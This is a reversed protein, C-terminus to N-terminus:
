SPARGAAGAVRRPRPAGGCHGCQPRRASVAAPTGVPELDAAIVALAHADGERKIAAVALGHAEDCRGAANAAIMHAIQHEGGDFMAEAQHVLQGLVM